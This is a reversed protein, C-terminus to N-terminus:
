GWSAPGTEQHQDLIIREGFRDRLKRLMPLSIPNGDLRLVTLDPQHPAVLLHRVQEDDFRNHRLDLEVLNKWCRSTTLAELRWTNWLRSRTLRLSRLKEWPTLGFLDTELPHPQEIVQDFEIAALEPLRRHDYILQQAAVFWYSDNSSRFEELPHFRMASHDGLHLLGVAMHVNALRLSRLSEALPSGPYGSMPMLDITITRLQLRQVPIEFLADLLDRSQHPGVDLALQRLQRVLPSNTLARLMEPMGPRSAVQFHLARLGTALPSDALVRMPEIPTITGYFTLQQVRPLWRGRSFQRWQELTATPLHLEVIPWAEFLRDAHELFLNLDHVVLSGPLGRIFPREPHWDIGSTPLEPLFARFIGGTLWEPRHHYTYVALSDWPQCHALYVQNRLFAAYDAAGHEEYWDAAVLRPLDDEPSAAAAQLLEEAGSM